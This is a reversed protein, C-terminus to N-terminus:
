IRSDLPIYKRPKSGTYIQRPRGSKGTTDENQERWHAIWGPLRGMALLTVSHLAPNPFGAIPFLSVAHLSRYHLGDHTRLSARHHTRNGFGHHLILDTRGITRNGAITLADNVLTLVDVLHLDRRTIDRM